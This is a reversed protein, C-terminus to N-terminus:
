LWDAWWTGAINNFVSQLPGVDVHSLRSAGRSNIQNPTANHPPHGRILSFPSQQLGWTVSSFAMRSICSDWLGLATAVKSSVLRILEAPSTGTIRSARRAPRPARTLVFSVTGPPAPHSAAAFTQEITAPISVPASLM